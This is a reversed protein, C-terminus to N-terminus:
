LLKISQEWKYSAQQWIEKPHPPNQVMIAAELAVKQANVWNSNAEREKVLKKNLTEYNLRYTALKNKADTSVSTGEPINELLKLVQQWKTDAQEWTDLSNPNNQVILAAEMAIEQANKFNAVIEREQNSAASIPQVPLIKERSIWAGFGLISFISILIVVFTKQKTIQSSEREKFQTQVESNNKIQSTANSASNLSKAKEKRNEQEIYKLNQEVQGKLTNAQLILNASKERLSDCENFIDGLSIFSDYSSIILGYEEHLWDLAFDCNGFFSTIAFLFDTISEGNEIIDIIRNLREQLQTLQYQANKINDLEKKLLNYNNFDLNNKLCNDINKIQEIVSPKLQETNIHAILQKNSLFDEALEQLENSWDIWDEVRLKLDELTVEAEPDGFKDSILGAGGAIVADVIFGGPILFSAATGLFPLARMATNKFKEFGLEKDIAEHINQLKVEIKNLRTAEYRIKNADGISLKLSDAINPLEELLQGFDAM